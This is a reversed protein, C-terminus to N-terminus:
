SCINRMPPSSNATSQGNGTGDARSSPSLMLSDTLDDRFPSRQLERDADTDGAEGGLRRCQGFKEAEGVLPEVLGFRGSAVADNAIVGRYQRLRRKNRVAEGALDPSLRTLIERFAAGLEDVQARTLLRVPLGRLLLVLRATEELEEAAYVASALDPGSVVPGHNALLM